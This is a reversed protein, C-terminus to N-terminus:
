QKTESSPPLQHRSLVEEPTLAEVGAIGAFHSGNYTCITAVGHTRMQAALFLDFLRGGAPRHRTILEGLVSLSAPLLELLPVSARLAEVEEWARDADLPHAIRRPHTVVALFELLVQPVLVGPLSGNLTGEV